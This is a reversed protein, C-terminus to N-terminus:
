RWFKIKGEIPHPVNPINNIPIGGLTFHSLCWSGTSFQTTIGTGETQMNFNLRGVLHIKRHAM